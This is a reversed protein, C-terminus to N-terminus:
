RYAFIRSPVGRKDESIGRCSVSIPQDKLFSKFYKPSKSALLIGNDTGVWVYGLRDSHYMRTGYSPIKIPPDALGRVPDFSICISDNTCGYGNKCLISVGFIEM